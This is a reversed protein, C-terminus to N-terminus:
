RMCQRYFRTSGILLMVGMASYPVALYLRPITSARLTMGITIMLAILIYGHRSTFAFVSAREPFNEIRKINKRVVRFFFSLYGALAIVIALAGAGLEVDLPFAALWVGARVCLLAGAITWVGGAIALLYHRRVTM